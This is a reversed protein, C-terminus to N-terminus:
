AREGGTRLGYRRPATLRNILPVFMNMFIVALAVGEPFSGFARILFTLIGVCSGYVIMGSSSMPSTVPDTAMYFLALMVGGTCLSFLVDGTFFGTHFLTGGFIWEFLAFSFFFSAPIEWSIIRRGFMLISGALLLLVSGEGIAGPVNGFFLDVYGGPIHAGLPSLIHANLWETVSLDLGSRPFGASRLLSMPGDATVSGSLVQAKIMGLPTATSVADVAGGAAHGLTRPLTWTSMSSTWSFYVFVRAALAPNMWNTGLGGFTWKVVAIAFVGAVVPIFLPVAPPMTMGILFGTLVASGDKLVGGGARPRVVFRVLIFECGASAGVAVLIVALARWGYLYIGWLLAPSLSLVVFWMILATSTREHFQPSGTVVPLRPTEPEAPVPRDRGESSM